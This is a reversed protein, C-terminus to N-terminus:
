PFSTKSHSYSCVLHLWSAFCRDQDHQGGAVIPFKIVRKFFFCCCCVFVSSRFMKVWVGSGCMHPSGGAHHRERVEEDKALVKGEVLVVLFQRKGGCGM